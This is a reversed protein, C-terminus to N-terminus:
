AAGFQTAEEEAAGEAIVDCGERREADIDTSSPIQEIRLNICDIEDDIASLRNEVDLQFDVVDSASVRPRSAAASWSRFCSRLLERWGSGAMQAAHLFVAWHGFVLQLIFM